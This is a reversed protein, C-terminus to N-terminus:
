EQKNYGTQRVFLLLPFRYLSGGLVSKFEYENGIGKLDM